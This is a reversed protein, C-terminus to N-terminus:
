VISARLYTDCIFSHGTPKKFNFGYKFPHLYLDDPHFFKEPNNRDNNWLSHMKVLLVDSPHELGSVFFPMAVEVNANYKLFLEVMYLFNATLRKPVYMFDTAMHFILTSSNIYAYYSRLFSDSYPDHQQKARFILENLMGLMAPRGGDTNWWYWGNKLSTNIRSFDDGFLLKERPLSRLVKINILTDDGILAYGAVKDCMKMALEVCRYKQTWSHHPIDVFYISSIVSVNEMLQKLTEPQAGCYMIDAFHRRYLLEMYPIVHYLEPTNFDVILLIEPFTVEIEPLDPFEPCMIRLLRNVMETRNTLKSSNHPHVLLGPIGKPVEKNWPHTPVPLCTPADDRFSLLSATSALLVPTVDYHRWLMYLVILVSMCCVSIFGLVHPRTAM